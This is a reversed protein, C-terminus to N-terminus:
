LPKVIVLPSAQPISPTAWLAASDTLPRLTATSPFPRKENIRAPMLCQRHPKNFRVARYHRLKRKGCLGPRCVKRTPIPNDAPKAFAHQHNFRRASATRQDRRSAREFLPSFDEGQRSRYTIGSALPGLPQNLLPCRRYPLLLYEQFNAIHTAIAAPLDRFAVINMLDPFPPMAM